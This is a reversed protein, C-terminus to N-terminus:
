TTRILRSREKTGSRQSTMIELKRYAYGIYNAVEPSTDHHLALFATVAEAYQGDLVSARAAHYGDVYEQFERQSRQGQKQKSKQSAKGSNHKNSTPPPSPPSADGAGLAPVISVSLGLLAATFVTNVRYVSRSRM